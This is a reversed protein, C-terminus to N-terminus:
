EALQDREFRFKRNLGVSEVASDLIGCYEVCVARREWQKTVDDVGGCPKICLPHISHAYRNEILGNPRLEDGGGRKELDSIQGQGEETVPLPTSPPSAAPM